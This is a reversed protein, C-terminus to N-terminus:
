LPEVLRYNNCSDANREFGRRPIKLTVAQKFVKRGSEMSVLHMQRIQFCFRPM